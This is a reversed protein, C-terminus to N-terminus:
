LVLTQKNNPNTLTTLTSGVRALMPAWRDQSELAAIMEAQLTKYDVRENVVAQVCCCLGHLRLCCLDRCHFSHRLSCRRTIWTSTPWQM